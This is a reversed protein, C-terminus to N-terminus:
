VNSYPNKFGLAQIGRVLEGIGQEVTVSTDYGLEGIKRYSVVYNRKDVDEGVDAYHVYCKV